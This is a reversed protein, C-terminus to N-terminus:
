LHEQLDQISVWKIVKAKFLYSDVELNDNSSDNWSNIASSEVFIGKEKDYYGRAFDVYKMSHTIDDSHAGVYSQECQLQFLCLLMPEPKKKTIDTFKM